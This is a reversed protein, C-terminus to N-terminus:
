AEPAARLRRWAVTAPWALIIVALLASPAVRILFLMTALLASMAATTGEVLANRFRGSLSPTGLDLSAKVEETVHLSITAYSVRDKLHERESTMLEISERVRAIEREVELVDAVKGTRQQLVAVLRKETERANSLRADLDTAQSTVDEGGQSETRVTGLKKLGTLVDTLRTEPVRLTITLWRAEGRSGSTEMQSVFGGGEKVIQDLLARTREVDAVVLQLTATRVVMAARAASQPVTPRPASQAVTQRRLTRLQAVGEPAPIPGASPAMVSEDRDSEVIAGATTGRLAVEFSEAKETPSRLGPWMFVAALILAAAAPAAWQWWAHRPQKTVQPAVQPVLSAPAAEIRWHQMAASTARVSAALESCAACSAVHAQVANADDNGSQGDVWAQVDEPTFPHEANKM